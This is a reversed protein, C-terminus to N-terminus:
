VFIVSWGNTIATGILGIAEDDAELASQIATSFKLMKGTGNTSLCSLISKASQVTLLSSDHIDFNNGIIGHITINKLRVCSYFWNQFSVTEGVTLNQITQLSNSAFVYSSSTSNVIIPVKIETIRAYIFCSSINISTVIPYKPNFISDTWGYGAFASSYNIRNGYDQYTDWFDDYQKQKGAAYVQPVNEAIQQLDTAISM